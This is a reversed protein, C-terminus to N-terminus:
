KAFCLSAALKAQQVVARLPNQYKTPMTIQINKFAM